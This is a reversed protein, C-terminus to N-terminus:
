ASIIDACNQRRIRPYSATEIKANEHFHIGAAYSLPKHESARHRMLKSFVLVRARDILFDAAFYGCIHPHLFIAGINSDWPKVSEAEIAAAM